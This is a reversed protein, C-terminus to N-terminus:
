GFRLRAMGAMAQQVDPSMTPVARADERMADGMRRLRARLDPNELVRDILGKLEAATMGRPETPETSM